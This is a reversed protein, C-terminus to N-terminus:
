KWHWICDSTFLLYTIISVFSYKYGINEMLSHAVHLREKMEGNKIHVGGTCFPNIVFTVENFLYISAGFVFHFIRLFWLGNFFNLDLDLFLILHGPILIHTWYQPVWLFSKWLTRAHLTKILIEVINAYKIKPYDEPYKGIDLIQSHTGTHPHTESCTLFKSFTLTPASPVFMVMLVRVEFSLSSDM